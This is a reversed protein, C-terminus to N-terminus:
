DIVNNPHVQKGATSNFNIEEAVVGAALVAHVIAAGAVVEVEEVM